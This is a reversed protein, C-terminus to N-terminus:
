PHKIQDINLNFNKLYTELKKTAQDNRLKSDNKGDSLRPQISGHPETILTELLNALPKTIDNKLWVEKLFKIIGFQHLLNLKLNQEIKANISVKEKIVPLFISDTKSMAEIYSILNELIEIRNENQKFLRNHAIEFKIKDIHRNYVKQPEQIGSGEEEDLPRFLDNFLDLLYSEFQEIVLRQERFDNYISLDRDTMWKKSQLKSEFKKIYFEINEGKQLEKDLFIIHYEPNGSRLGVENYITKIYFEIFGPFENVGFYNFEDEVWEKFIKIKGRNIESTIIQNHDFSKSFVEFLEDSIAKFAFNITYVDEFPQESLQNRIKNIQNFNKM